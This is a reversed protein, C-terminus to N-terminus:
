YVGIESFLNWYCLVMQVKEVLLMDYVYWVQEVLDFEIVWGQGFWFVEFFLWKLGIVKCLVVFFEGFMDDVFKCMLGIDIGLLIVIESVIDQCFGVVCMVELVGELSDFLSFM